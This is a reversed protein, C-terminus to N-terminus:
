KAEGLNTDLRGTPNLIIPLNVLAYPQSNLNDNGDVARLLVSDCVRETDNKGKLYFDEFVAQAFAEAMEFAKDRFAARETTDEGPIRHAFSVIILADSFSMNMMAKNVFDWEANSVYIVKDETWEQSASDCVQAGELISGSGSIDVADQAFAAVISSPSVSM